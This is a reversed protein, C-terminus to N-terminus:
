DKMTSIQKEMESSESASKNKRNCSTCGKTKNNEKTIRKGLSIRGLNKLNNNNSNCLIISPNISKFVGTIWSKSEWDNGDPLKDKFVDSIDIGYFSSNNMMRVANQDKIVVSMVISLVLEENAVFKRKGIHIIAEKIMRYFDQVFSGKVFFHNTNLNFIENNINGFSRSIDLLVYPSMGAWTNRISSESLINDEIFCMASEDKMLENFSSPLPKVVYHKCSFYAITADPYLENLKKMYEFKWLGDNSIKVSADIPFSDAGVIEFDSWVVIKGSYGSSRLSAVFGQLSLCDNDVCVSWVIESPMTDEMPSEQIESDITSNEEM